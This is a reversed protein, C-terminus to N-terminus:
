DYQDVPAPIKRHSPTRRKRLVLLSIVVLLFIVGLASLAWAWLPLLVDELEEPQPEPVVHPRPQPAISM